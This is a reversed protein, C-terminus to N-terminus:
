DGEVARLRDPDRGSQSASFVTPRPTSRRLNVVIADSTTVVIANPVLGDAVSARSLLHRRRRAYYGTRALETVGVVTVVAPAVLTLPLAEGLGRPSALAAALAAGTLALDKAIREIWLRPMRLGQERSAIRSTTALLGFLAAVMTAAAWGSQGDLHLGIAIGSLVFADGAHGCVASAWDPNYRILRRWSSATPAPPATVAALAVRGVVLAAAAGLQGVAMLAASAAAMGLLVWRATLEWWDAVPSQDHFVTLRTYGRGVAQDVRRLGRVVRSPPPDAFGYGDVIRHLVEALVTTARQRERPSASGRRRRHLEDIRELTEVDDDIADDLLRRADLEPVPATGPLLGATALRRDIRERSERAEDQLRSITTPGLRTDTDRAWAGPLAVLGARSMGCPDAEPLPDDSPAGDPAAATHAYHPDMATM